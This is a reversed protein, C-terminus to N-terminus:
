FNEFALKWFLMKVIDVKMLDDILATRKGYETTEIESNRRFFFQRM